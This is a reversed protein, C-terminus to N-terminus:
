PWTCTYAVWARGDPEQSAFAILAFSRSVLRGPDGFLIRAPKKQARTRVRKIRGGRRGWGGVGLIQSPTFIDSGFCSCNLVRATCAPCDGSGAVPARATGM